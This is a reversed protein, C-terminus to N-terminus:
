KYLERMKKRQALAYLGLALCSAMALLSLCFMVNYGNPLDCVWGWLVASVAGFM